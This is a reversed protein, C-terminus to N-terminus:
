RAGGITGAAFIGGLILLALGIAEIALIVVDRM